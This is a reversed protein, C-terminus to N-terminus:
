EEIIVPAAPGAPPTAAEAAEPIAPLVEDLYALFATTIDSSEDHYLVNYAALELQLDRLRASALTPESTLLVLTLGNAQAFTALHERMERYSAKILEAEMAVLRPQHHEIFLKRRLKLVEIRERQQQHQPQSPHYLQISEELRQVEGDVQGLFENVQSAQSQMEGARYEIIRSEDFVRELYLLGIGSDAAQLTTGFCLCLLALRTLMTM